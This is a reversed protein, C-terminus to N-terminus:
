TGTTCCGVGCTLWFPDVLEDQLLQALEAIIDNGAAAADVGLSELAVRVGQVDPSSATATPMKSRILDLLTGVPGSSTAVAAFAPLATIEHVRQVKDCTVFRATETNGYHKRICFSLDRPRGFPRLVGASVGYLQWTAFPISNGNPSKERFTSVVVYFRNQAREADQPSIGFFEETASISVVDVRGMVAKFNAINKLALHKSNQITRVVLVAGTGGGVTRRPTERSPTDWWGDDDLSKVFRAATETTTGAPGGTASFNSPGGGDAGTFPAGNPTVSNIASASPNWVNLTAGTVADIADPAPVNDPVVVTACLPWHVTKLLRIM